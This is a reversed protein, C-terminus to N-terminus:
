LNSKFNKKLLRESGALDVFHFKSTVSVWTGDEFRRSLRSNSRSHSGSKTEPFSTPTSSTSPTLPLPSACLENSPIFKQQSLIVTFIAHSRSSKSNMDTAGVQRNLSGRSLHGMVEGVSNVKIEQLGSLSISGNSNERILVQPKDEDNAEALLDILDENYLEVFSVRMSFKQSKYRASNVASFLTDMARPIIGKSETPSTFDNSTGMTHTKGSSTQGYALITVNFGDLFKDVMKTVCREYVEKQNCEQAATSLVNRQFRIPINILDESTLPRIRLAVKITTDENTPTNSM